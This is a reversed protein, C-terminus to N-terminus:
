VQTIPPAGLDGSRHQLTQRGHSVLPSVPELDFMFLCGIAGRCGQAPNLPLFSNPAPRIQSCRRRPASIHQIFYSGSGVGAFCPIAYYQETRHTKREFCAFKTDAKVCQVLASARERLTVNVWERLCAIVWFFEAMVNLSPRTSKVIPYLNLATFM